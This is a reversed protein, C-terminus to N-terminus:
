ESLDLPWRVELQSSDRFAALHAFGEQRAPNCVIELGPRLIAESTVFICLKRARSVAVNIRHFDYLFDGEGKLRELDLFGYCIIVVEAELGQMKEVTDVNVFASAPDDALASLVAAQQVRHPTVIFLRKAPDDEQWDTSAFISKALSAVVSAEM